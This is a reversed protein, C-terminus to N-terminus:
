PSAAIALLLHLVLLKRDFHAQVRHADRHTLHEARLDVKLRKIAREVGTRNKYRARERAFHQPHDWDLQPQDERDVRITRREGKTLCRAAFPCSKCVPRGQDDDPASWIFRQGTIDRGRLEFRHEAECVPFGAPTFRDIGEFEEALAAPAKRGHVPLCLRAQQGFGSVAGLNEQYADDALIFRLPTVVEPLDRVLLELHPVLTKGDHTAAYLCVRADIPIESEGFAVISAKHAWYIRTPGKVVV